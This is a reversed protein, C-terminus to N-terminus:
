IGGSRIKQLRKVKNNIDSGFNEYVDIQKFYTNCYEHLEAIKKRTPEDLDKAVSDLVGEVKRITLTMEGIITQADKAYRMMQEPDRDIYNIM